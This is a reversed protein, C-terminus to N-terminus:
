IDFMSLANGRFAIIKSVIILIVLLREFNNIQVFM